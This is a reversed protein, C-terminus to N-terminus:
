GVPAACSKGSGKRVARSTWKDWSRPGYYTMSRASYKYYCGDNDYVVFCYTYKYFDSDPYNYCIKDDGVMRWVGKDFREGELYDTTGNTNHFETYSFTKTLDRYDRYEGLMMTDDFIARLAKGTIQQYNKKDAEDALASVGFLVSFLSYFVLLSYKLIHMIVIYRLNYRAAIFAQM